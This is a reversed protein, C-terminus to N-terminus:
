GHATRATFATAAPYEVLTTTVDTFGARAVYTWADAGFETHVLFDSGAEAPSGHRSPALGARSRSLRGVIVPVTFCLHGGAALVRRCEELARVPREVHELTDSHVVLDFSGDRYPLSHMDIAPYDGRVYGPLVALAESAAVAGNLDLVRLSRAQPEAGLGRLTRDTGVARRIAHGLAVVRLNAGCGRCARGQQADVYAVEEASLQWAAILEPWLVAHTAFERGGCISCTTM